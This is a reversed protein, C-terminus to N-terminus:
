LGAVAEIEIQAGRPLAAVQVTSRAPHNQTFFTAYIENVAAFGSLDTMFIGVRLAKDLSSGAAELIAKVNQLSQRAQDTVKEPMQGTKPDIPLQGSVYVVNGSIIAQSYPGIAAPARDTTLVQKM